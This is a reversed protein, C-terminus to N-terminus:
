ATADPARRVILWFVSACAMGVLAGFPASRFLVGIGSGSEPVRLNGTLAALLLM